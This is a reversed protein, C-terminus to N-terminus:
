VASVRPINKGITEAVQKGVRSSWRSVANDLKFHGKVKKRSRARFHANRLKVNDGRRLHQAKNELFGLSM